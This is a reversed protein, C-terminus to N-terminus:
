IPKKEALFHKQILQKLSPPTIPKSIFANINDNEEARKMDDPNLSTSIMFAVINEKLKPNLKAYNELFEWGNMVPMNIDLFILNPLLANPDDLTKLYDIADKGNKKVTIEINPYLERIVMEHIFNTAEDDDIFLVRKIKDNM